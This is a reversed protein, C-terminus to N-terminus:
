SAGESEWEHILVKADKFDPAREIIAKLIGIAQEIDELGHFTKALLYLLHNFDKLQSDAHDTLKRLLKLCVELAEAFYHRALLIEISFAVERTTWKNKQSELINQSEEYLGMEFFGISLNYASELDLGTIVKAVAKGLGPLSAVKKDRLLNKRRPEHSRRIREYSDVLSKEDLTNKIKKVAADEPYVALVRSISKRLEQHMGEQELIKIEQLLENRDIRPKVQKENLESEFIKKWRPDDEKSFYATGATQLLQKDRTAGSLCSDVLNKTFIINQRCLVEIILPWPLQAGSRLDTKLARVLPSYFGNLLCFRGISQKADVSLQKNVWFKLLEDAIFGAQKRELIRAHIWLEVDKSERPVTSDAM